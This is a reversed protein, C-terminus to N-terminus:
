VFVKIEIIKSRSKPNKIKMDKPNKKFYKALINILSINAKNNKPPEKLDANYENDSIKELTEKKSNPKVNVYIKM